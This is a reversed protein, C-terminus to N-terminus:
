IKWKEATEPSLNKLYDIVIVCDPNVAQMVLRMDAVPIAVCGGTYPKYPGFCHLFIASGLGPTGNENYSINMAYTYHPNYDVIHESENTDLGPLERIDVMQNYKMGPRTDGSWYINEDVQKYPIACGPDPAIGFAETFRFTGVPTKADGEKTKELGEKGLFGPTTMVVYWNGDKDKEHLSVWATTKGVGAVVFLQKATKAQPLKTVWDPSAEQKAASVVSFSALVLVAWLVAFVKKMNMTM